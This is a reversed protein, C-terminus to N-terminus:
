SAKWSLCLWKRLPVGNEVTPEASTAFLTLPLADIFTLVITKMGM